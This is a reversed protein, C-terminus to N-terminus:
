LAHVAWSHLAILWHDFARLAHNASPTSIMGGSLPGFRPLSLPLSLRPLPGNDVVMTPQYPQCQNPSILQSSCLTPDVIFQM